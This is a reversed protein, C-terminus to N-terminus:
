DCHIKMATFDLDYESHARIWEFTSSATDIQPCFWGPIQPHFDGVKSTFLQEKPERYSFV